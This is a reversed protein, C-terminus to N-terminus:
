QDGSAKNVSKPSTLGTAAGTRALLMTSRADSEAGLALISQRSTLLLARSVALLSARRVDSAPLVRCSVALNMELPLVLVTAEGQLAVGELSAVKAEGIIRDRICMESGM